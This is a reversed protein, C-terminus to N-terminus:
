RNNDQEKISAGGEPSLLYQVTALHGKGAALLLPTIGIHNADEARVINASIIWQIVPLLDVAIVAYHLLTHGESDRIPRQEAPHNTYASQINSLNNSLCLAEFVPSSWIAGREKLMQLLERKEALPWSAAMWLYETLLRNNRKIVIDEASTTELLKRFAASDPRGVARFLADTNSAADNTDIYTLRGPSNNHSQARAEEASSSPTYSIQKEEM